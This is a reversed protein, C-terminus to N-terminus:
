VKRRRTANKTRRTTPQKRVWKVFATLETAARLRSLTPYVAALTRNTFTAHVMSHCQGCLLEVDDATGGKQKPLCHHRTLDSRDFGRGCLGCPTVPRKM